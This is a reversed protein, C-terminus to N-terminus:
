VAHVICTFLQIKCDWHHKNRRQGLLLSCVLSCLSEPYSRHHKITSFSFVKGLM